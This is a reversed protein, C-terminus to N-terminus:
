TLNEPKKFLDSRGIICIGLVGLLGLGVGLLGWKLSRPSFTWEVTHRGEPLWVGRQLYNIQLPAKEEGDVRVEWGPYYVDTTILLSPVKINIEVEMQNPSPFMVRSIKNLEQLKNFHKVSEQKEGTIFSKYDTIASNHETDPEYPDSIVSLQDGVESLCNGEEIFAARRLDGNLLENKAEEQSCLVVQDQTFVRPLTNNLRYLMWKGISRTESRPVPLRSGKQLIVQRISMNPLFSSGPKQLVLAYPWGTTVANVVDALRRLMPKSPYGLLYDGGQLSAMQDFRSSFFVSRELGSATPESVPLSGPTLYYVSESPLFCRREQEGKELNAALFYTGWFGILVVEMGVAGILLVRAWQRRAAFYLVATGVVTLGLYIVPSRLFWNRYNEWVLSFVRGGGGTSMSSWQVIVALLVFLLFLLWFRRPLPSRSTLVLHASIGAMIAVGLHGMIRWRFPYPLGFVPIIRSVVRYIPSHIGTVLFVSFLMLFFGTLWWNRLYIEEKLDNRKKCLLIIGTLCLLLLWYGGTMNADFHFDDIQVPLIRAALGPTSSGTLTGYVDPCILTLLYPWPLSSRENQWSFVGGGPLDRYLPLSEIMGAWHPGSLLLGILVVIAGGLVVRGTLRRRRFLYTFGFVVVCIIVTILCFLNFIADYPLVMFCIAAAGLVGMFWNGRLSFSLIGWLALPIWAVAYNNVPDIVMTAMPTGFSFILSFIFAGAPSIRLACRGLGYATLACFLWHFLRPLKVLWPFAADASKLSALLYFPYLPWYWIETYPLFNPRGGAFIHPNWLPLSGSQVTQANFYLRPYGHCFDNWFIGLWGMLMPLHYALVILCIASIAIIDQRKKDM